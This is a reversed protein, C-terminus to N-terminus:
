ILSLFMGVAKEDFDPLEKFVIVSTQVGTAGDAMATVPASTFGWGRRDAGVQETFYEVVKVYHEMDRLQLPVEYKAKARAEAVLRDMNNVIYDYDMAITEKTDESM